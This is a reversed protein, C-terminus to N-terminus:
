WWFILHKLISVRKYKIDEDKHNIDVRYKKILKLAEHESKM